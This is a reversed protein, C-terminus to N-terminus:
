LGLTEMSIILIHHNPGLSLSCSSNAIVTNLDPSALDGPPSTYIHNLSLSEDERPGSQNDTRINVIKRIM